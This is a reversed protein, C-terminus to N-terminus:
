RRACKGNAGYEKVLRWLGIPVYPPVLVEADGNILAGLKRAEPRPGSLFPNDVDLRRNADKLVHEGQAKM